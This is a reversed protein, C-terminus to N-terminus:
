QSSVSCSCYLVNSRLVSASVPSFSTRLITRETHLCTYKPGSINCEEALIYIMMCFLRATWSFSTYATDRTNNFFFSYLLLYYLHLLFKYKHAHLPHLVLGVVVTSDVSDVSDFPGNAARTGPAPATKRNQM